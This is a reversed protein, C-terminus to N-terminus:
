QGNEEAAELLSRLKNAFSPELELGIWEVLLERLENSDFDHSLDHCGEEVFEKFDKLEEILPHIAKELSELKAKLADREAELAKNHLKLIAAQKEMDM